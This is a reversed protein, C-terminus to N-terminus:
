RLICLTVATCTLLTSKKLERREREGGGGGLPLPATVAVMFFKRTSFLSLPDLRLVGSRGRELTALRSSPSFLSCVRFSWASGWLFFSMSALSSSPRWWWCGLAGRTVRVSSTFYVTNYFICSLVVFTFKCWYCLSKIFFFFFFPHPCGYRLYRFQRVSQQRLFNKVWWLSPQLAACMCSLRTDAKLHVERSLIVTSISKTFICFLNARSLVYVILVHISDYFVCLIIIIFLVCPSYHTYVTLTFYGFTYIIYFLTFIFPTYLRKWWLSVSTGDTSIM